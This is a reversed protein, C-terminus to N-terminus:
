IVLYMKKFFISLHMYKEFAAKSINVVANFM